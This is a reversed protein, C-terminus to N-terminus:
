VGNSASYWSSVTLFIMSPCKVKGSDAFRLYEVGALFMTALRSFFFSLLGDAVYARFLKQNM